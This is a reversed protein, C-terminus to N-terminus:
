VFLNNSSTQNSQINPGNNTANSSPVTFDIDILDNVTSNEPMSLSTPQQLDDWLVFLQDKTSARRGPMNNQTQTPMDNDDDFLFEGSGRFVSKHISEGRQAANIDIKQFSRSNMNKKSSASLKTSLNNTSYRPVPPPFPNEQTTPQFGSDQHSEQLSQSVSQVLDDILDHEDDASLARSNKNDSDENHQNKMISAADAKSTSKSKKNKKLKNFFSGKSSKSSKSQGADKENKHKEEKKLISFKKKNKSKSDKSLNQDKISGVSLNSSSNPPTIFESSRFSSPTLGDNSNTESTSDYHDISNTISNDIKVSKTRGFVDKFQSKNPDVSDMENNPLSTSLRGNQNFVVNNFDNENLIFRNNSMCLSSNGDMDLVSIKRWFPRGNKITCVSEFSKKDFDLTFDYTNSQGIAATVMKTKTNYIPTSIGGSDSTITEIIEGSASDNLYCLRIKCFGKTKCYLALGFDPILAIAGFSFYEPEDCQPLKSWTFPITEMNLKYPELSQGKINTGGIVYLSSGLVVSTHAYRKGPNEGSTELQFWAADDYSFCWIDDFAVNGTAGGYISFYTNGEDDITWFASHLARPPPASTEEVNIHCWQNTDFDFAYLDNYYKHNPGRGGFLWLQRETAASAHGARPPPSDMADIQSWCLTETDFVLLDGFCRDSNQGGFCRDASQGGFVVLKTNDFFTNMTCGFRPSPTNTTELLTWRCGHYMWMENSCSGDDLRGGFLYISNNAYAMAPSSLNPPSEAEVTKWALANGYTCMSLIRERKAIAFREYFKMTEESDPIIFRYDIVLKNNDAHTVRADELQIEIFTPPNHKHILILDNFLYVSGKISDNIKVNEIVSLGRRGSKMIPHSVGIKRQINTVMNLEDQERKKDDMKRVLEQIDELARAVNIHDWHCEPTAKSLDRLLLPYRPLRQVPTVLLSEISKGDFQAQCIKMAETAFSKNTRILETIEENASAFNSIHPSAVKFLSYNELFVKGISSEPAYGVSQLSLCFKEHVPVIENISKFTRGYVDLDINLDRFFPENFSSCVKQLDSVYSEETMYIEELIKSRRKAQDAAKKQIDVYMLVKVHNLILRNDAIPESLPFDIEPEFEFTFSDANVCYTNKFIKGLDNLSTDSEIDFILNWPSLDVGMKTYPYIRLIYNPTDKPLFQLRFDPVNITCEEPLSIIGQDPLVQILSPSIYFLDYSTQRYRECFLNLDITCDDEIRIPRATHDPFICLVYKHYFDM